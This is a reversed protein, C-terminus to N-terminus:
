GRMAQTPSIRAARTEPLVGSLVGIVCGAAVAAFLTEFSPLFRFAVEQGTAFNTTSFNLAPTLLALGAGAAAGALSLALSEILFASLISRRSFGHPRLVGIEPIRQAISAYMTIMAGLVAGISFILTEIIGLISIVDALGSSVKDYYASERAVSLGVQKDQTLTEAFPDLASESELQATVSSISGQAVLAEQALKLDSWLESEYASGGSEFVGVVRAKRKSALAVDQGISLGEYRGVLGKGVIAEDTGSVLMRGATIRAEPRLELVNDSVGRVQVTGIRNPDHTGRLLIHAVTEGTVMAQGQGNRKVGPAAAVRAVNSQDIRSGQEAWIDHEMVLAQDKSGASTMTRRMGHALMRSACLVFVVMAIGLTTALTTRRRQWLSRLSYTMLMPM